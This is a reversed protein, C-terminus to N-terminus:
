AVRFFSVASALADAETSLSQASAALEESAASNQQIVTELQSLGKSVAQVGTSQERASGAIEKVLASTKASDPVMLALIEGTREAIAVSNASLLAIEGAAKQSREALRRVESAVVAFGRGADGARAAEIAANLALLNTQRSIEEIIGISAAIRRMAALTEKVANGGESAGVAAKTSLDQTALTGAATQRLTANMEEMTASIEEATAAQETAGQSLTQATEAIQRSGTSLQESSSQVATVASRLREAMSSIAVILRAAEDDGVPTLKFSLDGEAMRGIAAVATKLPKLLHQTAVFLVILAVIAIISVLAIFTVTASSIAALIQARPIGVFFMGVVTRSADRLPLYSAQYPAGVVMAQGTYPEGRVLVAETVNAAAKTGIARSGDDKRVTTAARVDGRFLTVNAGLLRAITDISESEGELRTEGKYIAGARVSWAGPHLQEFFALAIANERRVAAISEAEMGAELRSHMLIGSSLSLLALAALVMWDIKTGISRLRM